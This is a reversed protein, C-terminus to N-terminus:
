RAQMLDVCSSSCAFPGYDELHINHCPVLVLVKPFSRKIHGWQVITRHHNYHGHLSDIESRNASTNSEDEKERGLKWGFAVGKM